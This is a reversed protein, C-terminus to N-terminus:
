VIDKVDYYINTKPNYYCGKKEDFILEDTNINKIYSM